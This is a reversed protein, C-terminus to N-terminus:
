FPKGVTSFNFPKYLPCYGSAVSSILMGANLAAVVGLRDQRNWALAMLAAALMARGIRDLTGVNQQMEAVEMLDKDWVGRVM